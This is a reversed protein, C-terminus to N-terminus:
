GQQAEHALASRRMRKAVFPVIMLDIFGVLSIVGGTGVNPTFLALYLGVLLMGVAMISLSTAILKIRKEAEVSAYPYGEIGTLDDQAQDGTTFGDGTDGIQPDSM